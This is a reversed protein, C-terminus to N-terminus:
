NTSGDTVEDVRSKVFERITRSISSGHFRCIAAFAAYLGRDIEVNLRITRKPAMYSPVEERFKLDQDYRINCRACLTVCADLNM